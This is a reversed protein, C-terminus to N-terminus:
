TSQLYEKSWATCCEELRGDPVCEIKPKHMADYGHAGIVGSSPTDEVRDTPPKDHDGDLGQFGSRKGEDTM